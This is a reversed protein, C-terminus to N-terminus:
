PFKPTVVELTFHMALYAPQGDKSLGRLGTHCHGPSM